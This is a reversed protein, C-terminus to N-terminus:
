RFFWAQLWAEPSAGHCQSWGGKAAFFVALTWGMEEPCEGNRHLDTVERPDKDPLHTDKAGWGIGFRLQCICVGAGRGRPYSLGSSCEMDGELPWWCSQLGTTWVRSRSMLALLCIEGIDKGNESEPTVGWIFWKCKDTRQPDAEPSSFVFRGKLSFLHHAWTWSLSAHFWPMSLSRVSIGVELGPTHSWKFWWSCLDSALDLAASILLSCTSLCLWWSVPYKYGPHGTVM